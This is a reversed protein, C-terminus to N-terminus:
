EPDTEFIELEKFQDLAVTLKAMFSVNKSDNPFAPKFVDPRELEVKKLRDLLRNIYAPHVGSVFISSDSSLEVSIYMPTGQIADAGTFQETRGDEGNERQLQCHKQNSDEYM